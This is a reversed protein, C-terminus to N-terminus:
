DHHDGDGSSPDSTDPQDPAGGSATDEDSGNGNGAGSPLDDPNPKANDTM